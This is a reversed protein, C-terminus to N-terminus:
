SHKLRMYVHDYDMSLTSTSNINNKQDQNPKEWEAYISHAEIRNNPIDASRDKKSVQMAYHLSVMKEPSSMQINRTQPSQSYLQHLSIYDTYREEKRMSPELTVCYACLLASSVAWNITHEDLIWLTPHPPAHKYDWFETNPPKSLQIVLRASYQSM